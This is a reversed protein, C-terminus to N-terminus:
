DGRLQLGLYHWLKSVEKEDDYRLTIKSKNSLQIIISNKRKEISVVHDFNVVLYETVQILKAM